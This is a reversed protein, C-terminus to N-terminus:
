NLTIPTQAPALNSETSAIHLDLRIELALCISALRLHASWNGGLLHKRVFVNSVGLLQALQDESIGKDAMAKLLVSGARTAFAQAETEVMDQTIPISSITIPALSYDYKATM